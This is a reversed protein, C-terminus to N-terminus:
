FDTAAIETALNDVMDDHHSSSSTSTVQIMPQSPQVEINMQLPQGINTSSVRRETRIVTTTMTTTAAIEPQESTMEQLYKFSRSPHTNMKNNNLSLNQEDYKNMLQQPKNYGLVSTGVNQQDNDTMQQLFRFSRSPVTSGTYRPAEPERERFSPPPKNYIEALDERNNIGQGRNVPGQQQADYQDQIYKFSRSPMHGDSGRRLGVGEGGVMTEEVTTTTTISATDNDDSNTNSYQEQLYRFSRSPLNSASGSSNQRNVNGMQEDLVARAVASKNIAAATTTTATPQSPPVVPTPVTKESDSIWGQLMQFSRSQTVVNTDHQIHKKQP